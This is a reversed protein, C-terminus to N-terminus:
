VIILDKMYVAHMNYVNWAKTIKYTIFGLLAVYEMNGLLTVYEM